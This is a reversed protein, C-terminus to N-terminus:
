IEGMAFTRIIEPAASDFGAIDLMGADSPDAITFSTASMACVILRADIEMARRYQQLAKSPHIKGAWTENDTYVIFVDVKLKKQKAYIMPQACDTNGMPIQMLYPSCVIITSDRWLGCSILCKELSTYYEGKDVGKTRYKFEYAARCTHLGTLSGSM